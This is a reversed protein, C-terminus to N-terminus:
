YKIPHANDISFLRYLERITVEDLSMRPMSSGSSFSQPSLVFSVFNRETWSEASSRLGDSYGKFGTTGIKRGVIGALSPASQNNGEDFSHCQLCSELASKVRMRSPADFSSAELKEFLRAVSSGGKVVKLFILKNDDTWLVLYTKKYQLVSRIRYGIFIPEAYVGRGREIRVRYISAAKLSGVILDKDWSEDFGELVVLDSAAVSPVFAFVPPDFDDMRGYPVANPWPSLNYQTGYTRSPWGFNNGLEHKNIKDGGRPGHESTWIAGDSGVAIGQMNRNGSSIIRREGTVWNVSLVKGYDYRDDQSIAVQSKPDPSIPLSVGDWEFDGNGIVIKSDGIEAIKGGSMHGHIDADDVGIPLCPNSDYIREWAVHSPLDKLSRLKKDLLAGSIVNRYCNLVGSWEVYSVLLKTSSDNSVVRVANYRLRHINLENVSKGAAKRTAVTEKYENFGNYPATLSLQEVKDGDSVYFIGDNTLLILEDKFSGLGGGQPHISEPVQLVKNVEINLLTTEITKGAFKEPGKIIKVIKKAVISIVNSGSESLVAGTLFLAFAFIISTIFYVAIKGSNKKM